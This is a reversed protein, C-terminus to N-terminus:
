SAGTCPFQVSKRASLAAESVVVSAPQPSVMVESIRSKAMQSELPLVLPTPPAPLQVEVLLVQAVLLTPVEVAACATAACSTKSPVPPATFTVPVTLGSAPM